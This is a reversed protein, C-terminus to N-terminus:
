YDHFVQLMALSHLEDLKDFDTVLDDNHDTAKFGLLEPDIAPEDYTKPAGKSISTWECYYRIGDLDLEIYRM